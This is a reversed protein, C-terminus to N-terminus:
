KGASIVAGIQQLLNFTDTGGWHEAMKGNEIRIVEFGSVTVSKGTPPIGLFTGQHTARVTLSVAVFDGEAIINDVTIKLDPFVARLGALRAKQGAADLPAATASVYRKYNPSFFEDLASPVGSNVAEYYRGILSKNADAKTKAANFADLQAKNVGSCGALLGIVLLLAAVMTGILIWQRKM